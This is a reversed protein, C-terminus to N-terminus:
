SIQGISGLSYRLESLNTWDKCDKHTLTKKNAIFRHLIALSWVDDLDSFLFMSKVRTIGGRKGCPCNQVSKLSIHVYDASMRVRFSINVKLLEGWFHKSDCLIFILNQSYRTPLNVQSIDLKAVGAGRWAALSRRPKVQSGPLAWAALLWNALWWIIDGSIWSNM